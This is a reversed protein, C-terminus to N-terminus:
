FQILSIPLRSLRDGSQFNNYVERVVNNYIGKDNKYYNNYKIVSEIMIMMM